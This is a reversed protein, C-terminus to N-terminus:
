RKDTNTIGKLEINKGNLEVTSTLPVATQVMQEAYCGQKALQIIHLIKEEPESSEVKFHTRVRRCGSNVDGRLVSGKLFYDFEVRCAAKEFSTKKM